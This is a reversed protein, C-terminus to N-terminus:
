ALSLFAGSRRVRGRPQGEALLSDSDLDVFEFVGTGCALALSAALGAASEQMCGVMLRKGAAAAVALIGLSGALGSKALKVNFVGAADRDALRLADEPSACSEDAAVPVPSRRTVEALGRLDDAPVPQELLVVRVGRALCREVLRLAQAPGLAQNGDVILEPRRGRRRGARDCALVRAFDERADGTV